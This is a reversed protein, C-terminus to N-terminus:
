APRPYRGRPRQRAYRKATSRDAQRRTAPTGRTGPQYKARAIEELCTSCFGTTWGIKHHPLEGTLAHRYMWESSKGGLQAGAEAPGMLPLRVEHEAAM